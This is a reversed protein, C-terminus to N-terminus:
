SELRFFSGKVAAELFEDQDLTVAVSWGDTGPIPAFGQINKTGDTYDYTEVGTEGALMKREISALQQMKKNKPNAEAEAIANSRNFVYSEDEYAITNGYKDLIYSSGMEGIKTNLVISQLIKADCEFLVAGEVSSGRYIPASVIIHSDTKDESIYPTSM